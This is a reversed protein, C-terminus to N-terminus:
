EGALDIDTFDAAVADHLNRGAATLHVTGKSSTALIVASVANGNDDFDILGYLAAASVGDLAVDGAIWNAPIVRLEFVEMRTPSVYQYAQIGFYSAQAPDAVQQGNADVAFAAAGQAVLATTDGLSVHVQADGIDPPNAGSVFIDCNVSGSATGHALHRSEPACGAGTAGAVLCALALLAGRDTVSRARRM